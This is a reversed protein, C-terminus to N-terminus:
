RPRIFQCHFEEIQQNAAIDSRLIRDIATIGFFEGFLVDIEARTFFHSVGMGRCPGEPIEDFTGPELQRGLGHGTCNTGWLKSYFLAGPRLVRAVEALAERIVHTTNAYLAFIDVAVDFHGDPWPLHAFHGVRLDAAPHPIGANESALRATAIDIAAPSVDIGHVAFGERQMFWLNAGPGCGVELVKVARQDAARFHRGMFRVLDEPPYRGWSRSRFKEDWHATYDPATMM